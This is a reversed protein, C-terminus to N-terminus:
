YGMGLFRSFTPSFQQSNTEAAGSTQDPNAPYRGFRGGHFEQNNFQPMSGMGPKMGYQAQRDTSREQWPKPGGVDQMNQGQQMAGSYPDQYGMPPTRSGGNPNQQFQQQQPRQQNYGGGMQGYGGQGQQQGQSFAPLPSNMGQGYQASQYPTYFNGGMFNSGFSNPTNYSYPGQSQNWQNNNFGTMTPPVYRGYNFAQGGYGTQPGQSQQNWMPMNPNGSGGYYQEMSRNRQSNGDSIAGRQQYLDSQATGNSAM